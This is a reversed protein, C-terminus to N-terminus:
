FDMLASWCTTREAYLLKVNLVLVKVRTRAAVLYAFDHSVDIKQVSVSWTIEM